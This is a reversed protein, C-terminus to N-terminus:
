PRDVLVGGAIHKMGIDPVFQSSAASRRASTGPWSIGMLDALTYFVDHSRIEKSANARLAQVRGPHAQEYAPNVWIFAPIEFAHPSYAPQGHGSRGDLGQLDEGHDPFFTVTAPVTLRRAEEVIQSLFWDTYLVTNDYADVVDAEVKPGELFISLMGLDTGAGFERFQDPYRRYYEWHSGMMHIGIFRATGVQRVEHQYAPLLVEDFTHRGNINANLDPPYVLKDPAVGVSMSISIDQNVLWATSYGAEKALDFINGRVSNASYNEPTMGTLLIPVAWDTLNADAVANQLFIAEPGLKSLFPTTPRHYGYVAWSARRVSEGVIFIHVEEGGVRGAHYPVKTVKSGHMEAAAQPLTRGIFLLSGLMPNLSMGDILEGADWASYATIPLLSVIVIRHLLKATEVFIASNKLTFTLFFYIATCALLLVTLERGQAFGIFGRAEEWSAGMLIMALTHGPPMRFAFSYTLFVVSLIFLPYSALFFRRWSRALGGILFFLLVATLCLAVLSRLRYEHAFAWALMGVTPGWLLAALVVIRYRVVKSWFLEPFKLMPDSRYDLVDIKCIGYTEGLADLRVGRAERGGAGPRANDTPAAGPGNSTPACAGLFSQPTRLRGDIPHALM